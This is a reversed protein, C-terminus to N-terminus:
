EHRRERKKTARYILAGLASSGLYLIVGNPFELKELLVRQTGAVPTLVARVGLSSFCLEATEVVNEREEPLGLGLTFHYFELTSLERAAVDTDVGDFAQLPRECTGCSAGERHFVQHLERDTEDHPVVKWISDCPACMWFTVRPTFVDTM